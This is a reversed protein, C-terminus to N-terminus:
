NCTVEFHLRTLLVYRLARKSDAAPDDSAEDLTAKPTRRAKRVGRAGRAPAATSMTSMTSTSARSHGTPVVGTGALAAAEQAVVGALLDLPASM